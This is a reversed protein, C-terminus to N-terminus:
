VYLAADYLKHMLKSGAMLVVTNKHILDLTLAHKYIDGCTAQSFEANVRAGTSYEALPTYVPASTLALAPVPIRPFMITGDYTHINGHFNSPGSILEDHLIAVLIPHEYLKNNIVHENGDTPYIYDRIHLM